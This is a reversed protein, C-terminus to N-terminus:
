ITFICKKERVENIVNLYFFVVYCTKPFAKPFSLYNTIKTSTILLAATNVAERCDERAPKEKNAMAIVRRGLPSTPILYFRSSISAPVMEENLPNPKPSNKIQKGNSKM